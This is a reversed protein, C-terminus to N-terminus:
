EQLLRQKKLRKKKQNIRWYGYILLFGFSVCLCGLVFNGIGIPSSLGIVINHLGIFFELPMLTALLVLMLNLQHVRSDIDSFLTFPQGDKKKSFYAWRTVHGIYEGGMEEVLAIYEQSEKSKPFNKLLQLRVCYEGPICPMFEYKGFGVSLLHWGSDEMENLWKEEEEFQWIWYMKKVIKCM